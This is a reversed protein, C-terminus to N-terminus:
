LGGQMCGGAGRAGSIGQFRRYRHRGPPGGCRETIVRYVM